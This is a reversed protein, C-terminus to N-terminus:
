AGDTEHDVGHGIHVALPNPLAKPVLDPKPVDARAVPHHEHLVVRNAAPRRLTLREDRSPHTREAQCIGLQSALFLRPTEYLVPVADKTLRCPGSRVHVADVLTPEFSKPRPLSASCTTGVWGAVVSSRHVCALRPSVGSSRPRASLADSPSRPRATSDAERPLSRPMLDESALRAMKAAKPM